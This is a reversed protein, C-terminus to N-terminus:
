FPTQLVTVQIHLQCASSLAAELDKPLEQADRPLLTGNLLAYAIKPDDCVSHGRRVQFGSFSMAPNWVLNGASDQDSPPSGGIQQEPINSTRSGDGSGGGGGEAEPRSRKRAPVTTVTTDKQAPAATKSAAGPTTAVELDVPIFPARPMEISGESFPDPTDRDLPLRVKGRLPHDADPAQLSTGAEAIKRARETRSKKRAALTTNYTPIYGLLKPANRIPCALLKNEREQNARTKLRDVVAVDAFLSNKHILM